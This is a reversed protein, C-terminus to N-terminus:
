EACAVDQCSYLIRLRNLVDYVITILAAHFECCKVIQLHDALFQKSPLQM